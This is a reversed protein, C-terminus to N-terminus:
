TTPGTQALLNPLVKATVYGDRAKQGKNRVAQKALSRFLADLDVHIQVRHRQGNVEVERIWSPM